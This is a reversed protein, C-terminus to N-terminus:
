PVTGCVPSFHVVVQPRGRAFVLASLADRWVPQEGIEPYVSARLGAGTALLLVRQLGAGTRMWEAPSDNETGIVALLSSRIIQRRADVESGHPASDIVCGLSPLGGRLQKGCSTTQVAAVAYSMAIDRAGREAQAFHSAVAVVDAVLTRRADDIVLDVWIGSDRAARRMMGLLRPAVCGASVAQVSATRADLAFTTLAAVETQPSLVTPMLRAVVRHAEGHPLLSLECEIGHKQVTLVADALVAGIMIYEQRERFAPLTTRSRLVAGGQEAVFEYPALGANSLATHGLRCLAGIAAARKRELSTALPESRPVEPTGLM